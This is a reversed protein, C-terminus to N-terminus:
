TRKPQAMWADAPVEGVGPYVTYGILNELNLFGQGGEALRIGCV